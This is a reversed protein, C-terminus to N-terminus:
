TEDQPQHNPRSSTREPGIRRFVKGSNSEAVIAHSTTALIPNLSFSEHMVEERTQNMRLFDPLPGVDVFYSQVDSLTSTATITPQIRFDDHQQPTLMKASRYSTKM